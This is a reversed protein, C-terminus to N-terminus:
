SSGALIPDVVQNLAVNLEDDVARRLGIKIGDNQVAEARKLGGCLWNTSGDSRRTLSCEPQQHSGQFRQMQVSLAFAGAM